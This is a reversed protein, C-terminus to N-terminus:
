KSTLEIMKLALERLKDPAEVKNVRITQLWTHGQVSLTFYMQRKDMDGMVRNVLGKNELCGIVKSANSTSLGLKAAITGSSLRESELICLVMGENLCLHHKEQFRTEYENTLRCVERMLCLLEM